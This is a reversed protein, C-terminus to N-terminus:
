KRIYSNKVVHESRELADLVDGIIRNSILFGEPTLRWSNETLETHGTKQYSLLVNEIKDPLTEYKKELVDSRIGDTTRLGLMIYEGCVERSGITEIKDCVEGGSRLAEVYAATDRVYSFRKKGVLSHASPGFGWYDRLTWYKMNHRSRSGEKSFNSIEYQLFGASELRKVAAFVRAAASAFRTASVPKGDIQFRERFSHIYPSTYLGVRRGSASLISALMTSVSGKGNTGAVHICPYSNQPDHLLSLLERVPELTEGRAFRPLAYIKEIARTATM